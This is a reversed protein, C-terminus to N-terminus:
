VQAAVLSVVGQVQASWEWLRDKLAEVQTKHLVRPQVWDVRVKGEVEDIMGKVVKLAFAKLVLMEVKDHPLDCASAIESFTLTRNNVEKRFVLEIFAMIRIKTQLFQQTEQPKLAEQKAEAAMVERFARIDGSNFAAVLRAVWQQSTGRLAELVPHQLLEGFNYINAGLIAAQGVSAALEVQQSVPISQLPTYTLYLLAHTYYDQAHGQAKHYSAFALHYSAHVSAEVLGGHEEMERKGESLLEKAEKLEGSAVKRAALEMKCTITAQKDAEVVKSISELFKVQEAIEPLQRSAATAFTVLSVPNLRKEFHKVFQEYLQTLHPATQFYPEGVLQLLKRGLADWLRQHYLQALETWTALESPVAGKQAEIYTGPSSM